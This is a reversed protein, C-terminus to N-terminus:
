GHSGPATSGNDISCARRAAFSSVAGAGDPVSPNAMAGADTSLARLGRGPLSGIFSVSRRTAPLFRRQDGPAQNAFAVGDSDDVRCRLAAGLEVGLEVRADVMGAVGGPDASALGPDGHPLVAIESNGIM